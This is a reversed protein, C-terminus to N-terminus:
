PLLLVIRSQNEQLTTTRLRRLLSNTDDRHWPHSTDVLNRCVGGLLFLRPLREAMVEYALYGAEVVACRICRNNVENDRLEIMWREGVLCEGDVLRSYASGNDLHESLCFRFSTDEGDRNRAARSNADRIGTPSHGLFLKDRDTLYKELRSPQLNSGTQNVSM